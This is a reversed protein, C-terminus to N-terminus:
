KSCRVMIIAVVVGIIARILSFIPDYSKMMHFPAFVVFFGILWGILIKDSM